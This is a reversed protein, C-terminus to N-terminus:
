RDHIQLLALNLLSLIDSREQLNEQMNEMAQYFKFLVDRSWVAETTPRNTLDVHRQVINDWQAQKVAENSEPLTEMMEIHESFPLSSVSMHSWMSLASRKQVLSTALTFDKEQASLKDDANADDAGHVAISPIAHIPRVEDTDSTNAQAPFILDDSINDEEVRRLEETFERKFKDVESKAEKEKKEWHLDNRITQFNNVMIGAFINKFVFSGVWIWSLIYVVTITSEYQTTMVKLLDLLTELWHDLTMLQFLTAFSWLIDSFAKQYLLQTGHSRGDYQTYRVFIVEGMLAFMWMFLALLLLIFSMASFAKTVAMLIIRAQEFRSVMKLLRTIRLVRLFSLTQVMGSGSADSNVLRILEPLISVVTVYFDLENWGNKWFSKFDDIWKLIIEAIFIWLCCYDCTRVIRVTNIYKPDTSEGIEADVILLVANFIILVLMFNQFLNSEVVWNAWMDLPPYTTERCKIRKFRREQKTVVSLLKPIPSFKVLAYPNESLIKNRKKRNEIDEPHYKPAELGQEMENLNELLRFDRILRMRFREAHATLVETPGVNHKEKVGTTSAKETPGSSRPRQPSLLTARDTAQIGSSPDM